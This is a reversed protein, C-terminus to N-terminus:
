KSFCFLNAPATSNAAEASSAQKFSRTSTMHKRVPTIPKKGAQKKLPRRNRPPDLVNSVRTKWNRAVEAQLVSYLRHLCWCSLGVKSTTTAFWRRWSSLWINPGYSKEQKRYTPNVHSKGGLFCKWLLTARPCRGEQRISTILQLWIQGAVQVLTKSDLWFVRAACWASVYGIKQWFFHHFTVRWNVQHTNWWISRWRSSIPGAQQGSQVIRRAAQCQAISGDQNVVQLFQTM